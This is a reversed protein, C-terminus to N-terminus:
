RFSAAIFLCGAAVLAPNVPLAAVLPACFGLLVFGCGTLVSLCRCLRQSGTVLRVLGGGDLGVVPLLNFAALALNVKFLYFADLSLGVAALVLNVTVGGLLVAVEDGRSIPVEDPTICLRGLRLEIARPVNGVACMVALHGFEHLLMMALWLAAYVSRASAFCFFICFPLSVRVTTNGVLFQTM